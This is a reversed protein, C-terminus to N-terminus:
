PKYSLLEVPLGSFSRSNVDSSVRYYKAGENVRSRQDSSLCNQFFATIFDCGMTKKNRKKVFM